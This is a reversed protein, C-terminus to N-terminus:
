PRMDLEQAVKEYAETMRHPKTSVERRNRPRGQGGLRALGEFTRIPVQAISM